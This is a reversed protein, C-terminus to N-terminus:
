RVSRLFPLKKRNKRAWNTELRPSQTPTSAIAIRASRIPPGLPMPITMVARTRGPKKTPGRAPTIASRKSRLRVIIMASRIRAPTMKENGNKSFRGYRRTAETTRSLRV